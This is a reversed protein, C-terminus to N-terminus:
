FRGSRGSRRVAPPRGALESRHCLSHAPLSSGPFKPRRVRRGGQGHIAKRLEFPRQRVQVQGPAFIKRTQAELPFTWMPQGSAVRGIEVKKRFTGTSNNGDFGFAQFRQRRVRRDKQGSIIRFNAICSARARPKRLHLSQDFVRPGVAPQICRLQHLVCETESMGERITRRSQEIEIPLGSIAGVMRKKGLM